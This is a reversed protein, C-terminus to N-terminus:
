IGVATPVAPPGNALLQRVLASLDAPATQEGAADLEDLSWWRMDEPEHEVSGADAPRPTFGPVRALFIKERQDFPQGRFTGTHRRTWICPGLNFRELGTEERLERRAADEDSEGPTRGGGPPCWWSRDGDWFRVLLVRESEDLLLVRVADRTVDATM